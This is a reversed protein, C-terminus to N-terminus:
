KKDVPQATNGRVGAQGLLREVTAILRRHNADSSGSFVDVLTGQQDLVYVVPIGAVSYADFARVDSIVIPYNLAFRSAFSRNIEIEQEPELDRVTKGGHPVKSEPDSFDSGYGYIRTVGLVQIKDGLKGQLHVLDPIVQRCPTCWTAWFDILVVKGKYNDLSFRDAPPYDQNGLVHQAVIAPAPKGKLKERGADREMRMVDMNISNTLGEHNHHKNPPLKTKDVQELMKRAALVGDGHSRTLSAAQLLSEHREAENKSTRSLLLLSDIAARYEGAAIEIQALSPLHEPRRLLGAHEALAKSAAEKQAEQAKRLAANYADMEAKPAGQAPRTVGRLGARFVARIENLIAVAPDSETHEQQPIPVACDTASLPSFPLLLAALLTTPFLRM